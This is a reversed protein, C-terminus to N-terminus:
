ITMRTRCVKSSGVMQLAAPLTVTKIEGPQISIVENVTEGTFKPAKINIYAMYNQNSTAYFQLQLNDTGTNEMFM